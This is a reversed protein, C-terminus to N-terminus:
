TGINTRPGPTSSGQNVSGSKVSYGGRVRGRVIVQWKIPCFPGEDKQFTIVIVQINVYCLTSPHLVM